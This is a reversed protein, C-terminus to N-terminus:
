KLYALAVCGLIALVGLFWLVKKLTQKREQERMWRQHGRAEAQRIERDADTANAVATEYYQHRNDKNISLDSDSPDGPSKM